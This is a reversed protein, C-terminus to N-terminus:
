HPERRTAAGTHVRPPSLRLPLKFFNAHIKLTLDEASISLIKVQVISLSLRMKRCTMSLSLKTSKIKSFNWRKSRKIIETMKSEILKYDDETVSRPLSFDYYLGDSIQPGIAYQTEKGFIEIVAKALVHALSHRYIEIFASKEM